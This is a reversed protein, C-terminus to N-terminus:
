VLDEKWIILIRGNPHHSFNDAMRWGLFKNRALWDVIQHNLNTELVLIGMIAVRNRRLYKLVGSQKLPM